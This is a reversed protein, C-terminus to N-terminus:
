LDVEELLFFNLFFKRPFHRASFCKLNLSAQMVAAKHAVSLSRLKKRSAGSLSTM